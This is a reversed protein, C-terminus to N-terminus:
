AAAKRELEKAIRRRAAKLHATITSPSVDLMTAAQRISTNRKWILRAVHLQRPTLVTEAINWLQDDPTEPQPPTLRLDTM